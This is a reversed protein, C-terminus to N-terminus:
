LCIMIQPPIVNSVTVVTTFFKMWSSADISFVSMTIISMYNTRLQQKVSSFAVVCECGCETHADYNRWQRLDRHSQPVLGRWFKSHLFSICIITGWIKDYKLIEFVLNRANFHLLFNILRMIKVSYESNRLRVDEIDVLDGSRASFKVNEQCPSPCFTGSLIYLFM